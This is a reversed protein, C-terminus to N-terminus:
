ETDDPTTQNQEVTRLLGAILAEREADSLRAAPHNLQYLDPPMRGSRIEDEIREVLTKPAFPEDPDIDSVAHRDWESFNLDERGEVVDYALLWSVPAIRSYWPWQTENSHCDYCAQVTLARTKPSDWVPERVVPPNDPLAPFLQIAAAVLLVIGANILLTRQWWRRDPQAPLRTPFLRRM